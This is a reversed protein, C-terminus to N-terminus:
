RESPHKEHVYIVQSAVYRSHVNFVPMFHLMSNLDLGCDMMIQTDNFKLVYCPRNTEGSISFQLIFM